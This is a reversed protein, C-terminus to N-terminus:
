TRPRKKLKQHDAFWFLWGVALWGGTAAVWGVQGLLVTCAVLAVIWLPWTWKLYTNLRASPVGTGRRDVGGFADDLWRGTAM